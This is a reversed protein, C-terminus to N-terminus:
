DGWDTQLAEILRRYREAGLRSSLEKEIDAIIRAGRRNVERGLETYQILKSNRREPDDSVKLVGLRVLEGVTKHVAQRSIALKRGLAAMNIPRGGMHALLRSQAPTLGLQDSRRIAALIHQDVWENRAILLLKLNSM